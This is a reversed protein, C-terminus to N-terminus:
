RLLRDRTQRNAILWSLWTWVFWYFMLVLTASNSFGIADLAETAALMLVFGVGLYIWWRRYRRKVFEANGLTKPLGAAILRVGGFVFVLVAILAGIAEGMGGMGAMVSRQSGGAAFLLLLVGVGIKWPTAPRRGLTEMEM